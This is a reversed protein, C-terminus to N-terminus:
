RLELEIGGLRAAILNYLWAILAGLLFGVFGYLFPALVAFVTFGAARGMQGSVAAVLAFFLWFASGLLGLVGYLLGLHKAVSEVGVKALKQM